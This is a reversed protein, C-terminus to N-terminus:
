SSPCKLRELLQRTARQEVSVNEMVGTSRLILAEFREDRERHEERREQRDAEREARHASMLDDLFKQQRNDQQESRSFVWRLIFFVGVFMTFVILGLIGGLQGWLEPGGIMTTSQALTISMEREFFPSAPQEPWCIRKWVKM